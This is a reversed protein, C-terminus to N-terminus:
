LPTLFSFVMLHETHSERTLLPPSAQLQVYSNYLSRKTGQLLIIIVSWLVQHFAMGLTGGGLDGNGFGDGLGMVMVAM